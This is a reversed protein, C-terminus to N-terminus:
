DYDSEIVDYFQLVESLESLEGMRFLLRHVPTGTCSYGVEFSKFYDKRRDSLFRHLIRLYDVIDFMDPVTNGDDANLIELSHFAKGFPQVAEYESRLTALISDPEFEM